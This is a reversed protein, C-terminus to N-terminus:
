MPYKGLDGPNLNELFDVFRRADHERAVSEDTLARTSAQAVVAEDVMIPLHFKLSAIIADSGRVEVRMEKGDLSLWLSALFVGDSVSDITIRKVAMGTRTLLLSMLEQRGSQASLDRSVLEAAISVAEASSIWIPLTFDESSNKLLLVPKQTLTDLTFGSITMEIAM